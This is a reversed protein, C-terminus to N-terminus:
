CCPHHSTMDTTGRRLGHWGFVVRMAYSITKGSLGLFRAFKTWVDFVIFATDPCNYHGIIPHTCWAIDIQINEDTSTCFQGQKM